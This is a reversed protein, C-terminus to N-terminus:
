SAGRNIATDYNFCQNAKKNTILFKSLGKIVVSHSGHKFTMCNDESFVQFLYIDGRKSEFEVARYCELMGNSHVRLMGEYTHKTKTPGMTPENLLLLKKIESLKKIKRCNVSKSCETECIDVQSIGNKTMVVLNEHFKIQGIYKWYITTGIFVLLALVVVSIGIRNM